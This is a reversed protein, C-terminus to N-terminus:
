VVKFLHSVVTGTAADRLELRWGGTAANLPMRIRHRLVGEVRINETHMWAEVGEPDFLKLSCVGQWGIVKGPEVLAYAYLIISDGRRVVSEAELTLGEFRHPLLALIAPEGQSVGISFRTGHGLYIGRRVDYLHWASKLVGELMLIEQSDTGDGAISLGDHGLNRGELAHRQLALLRGTGYRYPILEIGVVPSREEPLHIDAPPEIGVAALARQMAALLRKGRGLCRGTSYAAMSLNLYIGQGAGARHLVMAPISGSFGDMFASEGRHCRTGSEVLEVDEPPLQNNFGAFGEVPVLSGQCYFPHMLAHYRVIGFVDDLGGRKRWRCHGDMLGTQFDGIVTGGAEVFTRIAEAEEDCISLSYPLILVHFRGDLLRGEQIEGSALFAYQLGLDELLETWGQRNEEFRRSEGIAYTAHVSHMSYHVAIGCADRESAYLLLKGIGGGRIERFVEAMDRASRSFTFDPNICSYEWFLSVLSFGHFLANWLEARIRWGSTGYGFWGGLVTGPRSFSRHFEYQGGSPYAEFFSVHQHLLSYDYGSYATTAQCGSMRIRGEPDLAQIIDAIRHYAEAFTLEMFRRHDAWAALNGKQRAELLTDPIIDSWAKFESGWTENLEDLDAYGHKLWKQMLKLCHPCFCLELEDTYCTLSGEDNAFYAIPSFRRFRGVTEAISREMNKWFSPDNLCPIRVLLNKDLSKLYTEKRELYPRRHYWYIGMGEVGSMSVTKPSGPYLGTVGIERFLQATLPLFDGHGRNQPCMFVEFDEIRRTEPELLIPDIQYSAVTMRDYELKALLRLHRSRTSPVKFTFGHFAPGCTKVREEGWLCGNGDMLSLVLDVELGDTIVEVHLTEGVRAVEALHSVGLTRNMKLIQAPPQRHLIHAHFDVVADGDKLSIDLRLDGAQAVKRPLPLVLDPGSVVAQGVDVTHGDVGTLEYCVRLGDADQFRLQLSCSEGFHLRADLLADGPERNSAWVMARFVLAYLHELYDNGARDMGGKWAEHIPDYTSEEGTFEAHQPLICRPYWGFAVVRGKEVTRVAAIPMGGASHVIVASDTGAQAPYFALDQFPLEKFPIGRTIYHDKAIWVDRELTEFAIGPFGEGANQDPRFGEEKLGILPSLQKLVESPPMGEGHFPQILVLGTGQRVRELIADQTKKTFHGWGNISPLVMVDFRKESVLARELNKLMVEFDGVGGRLDYFDGLGWKNLDWARDFTVTDMEIDARRALEVVERGYRVGPVFFAKLPGGRYPRGWARVPEGILTSYEIDWVKEM